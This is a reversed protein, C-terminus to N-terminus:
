TVGFIISHRLFHLMCCGIQPTFTEPDGHHLSANLSICAQFIYFLLFISFFLLHSIMRMETLKQTLM